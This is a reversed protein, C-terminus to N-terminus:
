RPLGPNAPHPIPLPGLLWDSHPITTSGPSGNVIMRVEPPRGDAWTRRVVKVIEPEFADTRHDHWWWYWGPEQPAGRQWGNSM